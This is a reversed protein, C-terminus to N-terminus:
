ERRIAFYMQSRRFIEFLNGYTQAKGEGSMEENKPLLKGIKQTTWVKTSEKGRPRM